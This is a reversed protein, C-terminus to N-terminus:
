KHWINIVEKNKPFHLKEYESHPVCVILIDSEHIVQNLPLLNPDSILPDTTLVAKARFMLIKKLKYSLSTRADDSNPKFAMGLLGVTKNELNHKKELQNVLFAPLGENAQIAAQGLNFKGESYACLQLTDKFLCPGGAFGPGPLDRLRSYDQKAGDLIKNYDLGASTAMEYFQNTAAFQIYRYTNAFLKAFEAEMTQLHVIQPAIMSFLKAAEHTAQVSTGSVIQPLKQLERIAEGQVIREPCFALLPELGKNKLYKSVYETVGPFVTSRLILTHENHLPLSDLCKIIEYIKPNHFEDIPTGITLIVNKSIAVEDAKTTFFLNKQELASKLFPEYGTELFPLEGSAIIDMAKQNLDYILVKLGHHAFLIALPAGIHGAGGVICIDYKYVFTSVNHKYM